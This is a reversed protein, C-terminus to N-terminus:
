VGRQALPVAGSQEPTRLDHQEDVLLREQGDPVLGLAFAARVGEYQGFGLRDEFSFVVDAFAVHIIQGPERLVPLREGSGPLSVAAAPLCEQARIPQGSGEPSRLLDHLQRRPGAAM